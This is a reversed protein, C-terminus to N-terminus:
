ARRKRLVLGGLTLLFLTAPEPIIQHVSEVNVTFGDWSLQYESGPALGDGTVATMHDIQGPNLLRDSYFTAGTPATLYFGFANAAFTATDVVVFHTLDVTRLFIGDTVDGLITAVAMDGTISSSTFMELKNAINNKDFMGFTYGTGHNEFIIKADASDTASNIAWYADVGDPLTITSGALVPSVILAM